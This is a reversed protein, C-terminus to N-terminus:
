LVQTGENAFNGRMSIYRRENVSHRVICLTLSSVIQSQKPILPALAREFQVVRSVNTAKHHFLPLIWFV